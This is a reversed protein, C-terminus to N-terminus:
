LTNLLIIFGTIITVINFAVLIINQISLAKSNNYVKEEEINSAIYNFTSISKEIISKDDSFDLPTLEFFKGNVLSIKVYNMKKSMKLKSIEEYSIERIGTILNITSALGVLLLRKNTAVVRFHDAYGNFTLGIGCAIGVGIRAAVAGSNEVLCDSIVIEGETLTEKILEKMDKTNMNEKVAITKM